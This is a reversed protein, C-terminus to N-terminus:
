SPDEGFSTAGVKAPADPRPDEQKIVKYTALVKM